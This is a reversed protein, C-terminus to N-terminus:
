SCKTAVTLLHGESGRTLCSSSDAIRQFLPSASYREHPFLTLRAARSLKDIWNPLKLFEETGISGGYFEHEKEYNYYDRVLIEHCVYPDFGETVEEFYEAAM